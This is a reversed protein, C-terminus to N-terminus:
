KGRKPLTFSEAGDKLYINFETSCKKCKYKEVDFVNFSWKKLYREENERECIPCQISM